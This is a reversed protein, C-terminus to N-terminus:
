RTGAVGLRDLPESAALRDEGTRLEDKRPLLPIGAPRREHGCGLRVGLREHDRRGAVKARLGLAHELGPGLDLAVRPRPEDEAAAPVAIRALGAARPVPRRDEVDAVRAEGRGRERPLEERSAGIRVRGEGILVALHRRQVACRADHVVRLQRPNQELRTRVGVVPLREVVGDLVPAGSAELEQERVSRGDISRVRQRVREVVLLDLVDPEQEVRTAIGVLAAVHGVRNAAATVRLHEAEQGLM